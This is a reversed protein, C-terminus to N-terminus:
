ECWQKVCEMWDCECMGCCVGNDCCVSVFVSWVDVCVWVWVVCVGGVCCKMGCWERAWAGWVLEGEGGVGGGRVWRVGGGQEEEGWVGVRMGGISSRPM